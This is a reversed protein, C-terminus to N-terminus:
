KEAADIIMNKFTRSLPTPFVEELFNEGCFVRGRCIRIQFNNQSTQPTIEKLFDGRLFWV